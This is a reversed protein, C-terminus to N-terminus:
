TGASVRTVHISCLDVLVFVKEMMSVDEVNFGSPKTCHPYQYITDVNDLTNLNLLCSAATQNRNCGGLKPWESYRIDV